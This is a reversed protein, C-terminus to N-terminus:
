WRKKWDYGGDYGDHGDYGGDKDCQYIRSGSGALAPMAKMTLIVPAVYATTKLFDRRSKQHNNDNM